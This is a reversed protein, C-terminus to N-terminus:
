PVLRSADPVYRAVDPIYNGVAPIYFGVDPIYFGVDPIYNGVAPIYNSVLASIQKDSLYSVPIDTSAVFPSALRAKEVPWVTADAAIVMRGTEDFSLLDPRVDLVAGSDDMVLILESQKTKANSSTAASSNEASVLHSITLVAILLSLKMKLEPSIKRVM